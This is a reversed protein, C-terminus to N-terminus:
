FTKSGTVIEFHDLFVLYIARSDPLHSGELFLNGLFNPLSDRAGFHQVQVAEEFAHGLFFEVGICSLYMAPKTGSRYSVPPSDIHRALPGFPLASAQSQFCDRKPCHTILRFEPTPRSAAECSTKCALEVVRRAQSPQTPIELTLLLAFDIACM